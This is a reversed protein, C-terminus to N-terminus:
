NEWNAVFKIDLIETNNHKVFCSLYAMGFQKYIETQSLTDKGSNTDFTRISMGNAKAHSIIEKYSLNNSQISNCFLLVEDEAQNSKYGFYLVVFLILLLAIIFEKM